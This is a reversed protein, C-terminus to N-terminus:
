INGRAAFCHGYKDKNKRCFALTEEASAQSLNFGDELLMKMEDIPAIHLAHMMGLKIGERKYGDAERLKRIRDYAPEVDQEYAIKFKGDEVGYSTKLGTFADFDEGLKSM